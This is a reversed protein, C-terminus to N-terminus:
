DIEAQYIAKILIPLLMLVSFVIFIISMLFSSFFLKRMSQRWKLEYLQKYTWTWLFIVTIMHLDDLNPLIPKTLTCLMGLVLYQCMVFSMIYFHETLNLKSGVETKRYVLKNPLVFMFVMYLAGAAKNHTLYDVINYLYKLLGTSVLKEFDSGKETNILQADEVDMALYLLMYLTGVFFLLQVPPYYIVRKGEIFERIMYGPRTFLNILTHKIRGDTNCVANMLHDIVTKFTLRGVTGKQGCQPCYNGKFQTGCCLCEHEEGEDPLLPVMPRHSLARIKELSVKNLYKM